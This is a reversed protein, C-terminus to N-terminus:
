EDAQTVDVRERLAELGEHETLEEVRERFHQECLGVSVGGQEAAYAADRECYHCQM